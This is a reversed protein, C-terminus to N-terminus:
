IHNQVMIDVYTFSNYGIQWEGVMCYGTCNTQLVDDCDSIDLSACTWCEIAYAPGSFIILLNYM